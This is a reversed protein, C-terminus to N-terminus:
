SDEAYLNFIYIYIYRYNRIERSSNIEIEKLLMSRRQQITTLTRPYLDPPGPEIGPVALIFFLLPEPVPDV